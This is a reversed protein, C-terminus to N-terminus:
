DHDYDWPEYDGRLLVNLATTTPEVPWPDGCFHRVACRIAGTAEDRHVSVIEGLLTRGNWPMTVHFGRPDAKLGFRGAIAKHLTM